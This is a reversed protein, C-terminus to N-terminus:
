EKEQSQGIMVIQAAFEVAMAQREEADLVSVQALLHEGAPRVLLNEFPTIGIAAPWAFSLDLDEVAKHLLGPPAVGGTLAQGDQKLSRAKSM